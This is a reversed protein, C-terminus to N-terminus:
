DMVYSGAVAEMLPVWEVLCKTIDCQGFLRSIMAAVYYYPSSLSNTSYMVKDHNKHKNPNRIWKKIPNSKLENESTFQVLFEKDYVKERDLIHDIM